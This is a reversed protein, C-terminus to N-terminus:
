GDQIENLKWIRGTLPYQHKDGSREDQGNTHTERTDLSDRKLRQESSAPM